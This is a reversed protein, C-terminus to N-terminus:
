SVHYRTSCRKLSRHAVRYCYDDVATIDYSYNWWARGLRDRSYWIATRGNFLFDGQFWSVACRIQTRSIRRKCAIRAGGLYFMSGFRRQLTVVSYSHAAQSTLRPLSPASAQASGAFALGAILTIITIIRKM